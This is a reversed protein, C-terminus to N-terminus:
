TSRRSSCKAAHFECWPYGPQGCCQFDVSVENVIFRCTDGDPFDCIPGIAEPAKPKALEIKRAVHGRPKGTYRPTLGLRRVIGPITNRSIGDRRAIDRQSLGEDWLQRVIAKIDSSHFQYTM